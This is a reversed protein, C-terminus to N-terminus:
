YTNMPDFDFQVQSYGENRGANMRGQLESEIRDKYQVLKDYKEDKIYCVYRYSDRVKSLQAESPGIVTSLPETKNEDDVFMRVDNITNLARNEDPDKVQVALMHYAPPYMLLKRYEMEENYFAKYDQKAAQRIAYNDPEYTQIVVEGKVSGRGARGAAQTLLQFTREAARYDGTNLSLDAMLIGVLTVKPFDHGKVIMQTGVLIDAEENSFKSLIKEYSDKRTTTDADMRLVRARPFMQKINEEVKETGARFGAIYKSGCEPCVKLAPMTFGCYHCVLHRDRGHETLSVDCHPCKVVYGCSRCSVSGVIGRRNLFLMVQEGKDLRDEIRTQLQESFISRNGAKLEARMDTIIVEPLNEGTLRRNLEYLRFEGNEAQYYSELSPTASGLLVAAHDWEAIKIAVERAHYKPMNENKYSGEHEEDMVIIGLAPFPTFLASRPGIIVDIEGRRAREYQDFKEGESLTSNMVSVRDGFHGYFRLLTQYTLAIEPILMIAQRGRAVIGEIIRIYVETKGSGTIGHLLSVGPNGSDFDSLVGKVISQQEPSLNLEKVEAKGGKVPNRLSQEISVEILGAKELSKITPTTIHLKDTVLSYPQEGVEMLGELLRARAVQHKQQYFRLREAADSRGARLRITKKEEPRVSKRIPLVTKLATIATSGYHEKIWLALRLARENENHGANPDCSGAITKVKDAPYSCSDRLAVVYGMRMTDGKGFPIFVRDGVRVSSRMEVPVRYTFPHDLREHSIDIIIDAYINETM